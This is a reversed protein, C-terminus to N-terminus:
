KLGFSVSFEPLSDFQVASKVFSPNSQQSQLFQNKGSMLAVRLVSSSQTGMFICLSDLHLWVRAWQWCWVRTLCQGPMSSHCLCAGVWCTKPELCKLWHRNFGEFGPLHKFVWSFCPWLWLASMTHHLLEIDFSYHFCCLACGAANGQWQAACMCTIEPSMQDLPVRLDPLSSGDM